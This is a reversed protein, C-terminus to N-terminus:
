RAYPYTRAPFNTIAMAGTDPVLNFYRYGKLYAEGLKIAREKEIETLTYYSGEVASIAVIGNALKKHNLCTFCFDSFIAKFGTPIASLEVWSDPAIETRKIETSYTM